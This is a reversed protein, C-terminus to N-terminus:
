TRLYRRYLAYVQERCVEGWEYSWFCMIGFIMESVCSVFILEHKLADFEVRWTMMKGVCILWGIPEFQVIM